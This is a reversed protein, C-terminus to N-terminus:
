TAGRKSMKQGDEGLIIGQNVLRQFPEARRSIASISSCRTGSARTFCICCPTSRAASTSISAARSRPFTSHRIDSAVNGISARRRGDDKTMRPQVRCTEGGMWYREAEEGVFREGIRASRLLAPLVLLLGGMAAHHQVRANGNGLLAVWEEREPSRRNAAAPRSSIMSRRRFSRCSQNRCRKM